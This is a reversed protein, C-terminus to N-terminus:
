LWLLSHIGSCTQSVHSTRTTRAQLDLNHGLHVVVRRFNATIETPLVLGFWLPRSFLEQLLSLSCSLFLSTPWINENSSHISSPLYFHQLSLTLSLHPSSPSYTLPHPHSQTTTVVVTKPSSRLLHRYSEAFSNALCFFFTSPFPTCLRTVALFDFLM